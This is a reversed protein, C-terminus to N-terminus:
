LVPVGIVWTHAKFLIILYVSLGVIVAIIDNQAPGERVTVLGRRQRRALSIRDAVAWALFSGFLLVSALDGNSLLHALAWLKVALVMPHRAQRTIRGHAYASVLLVFVPLMVLHTIHRLFFPPDYLHPVGADRAQGYGWVILVLGALAILSYVGRYLGDGVTAVLRARLDPLMPMVHVGFFLILGFVLLVM